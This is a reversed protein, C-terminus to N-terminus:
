GPRTFSRGPQRTLSRHLWADLEGAQGAFLHGKGASSGDSSAEQPLAGLPGTLAVPVKLEPLFPVMLWVRVRVGGPGPLKM